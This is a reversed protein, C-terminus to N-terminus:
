PHRSGAHRRERRGGGSQAPAPPAGVDEAADLRDRAGRPGPIPVAAALHDPLLALAPRHLDLRVGDDVLGPYGPDGRRHDPDPDPGHPELVADPPLRDELVSRVTKQQRAPARPSPALPHPGDRPARATPRSYHM